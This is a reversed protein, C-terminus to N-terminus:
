KKKWGFHSSSQRIRVGLPQGPPTGDSDESEGGARGIYLLGGEPRSDHKGEFAYVGPSHLASKLDKDGHTSKIPEKASNFPMSYWWLGVMSIADSQFARGYTYSM